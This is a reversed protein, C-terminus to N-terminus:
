TPAPEPPIRTVGSRRSLQRTAYSPEAGLEALAQYCLKLASRAGSQDGRALAASALAAFAEENWPDAALARRALDDAAATDGRGVLLEAARIASAVFRSRYHARDMALWQAEPVDAFLDGRYLDAAALHHDLAATANGESEARAAAALLEDFRDVDLHLRSGVALEVLSGELRVLYPPEGAARWPELAKLLYSLTVGLNNGGKREDHDPWLAAVIAARHTKRHGVLYALLERVRSRRLDPDTVEHRVHAASGNVAGNVLGGSGNDSRSVSLMGLTSVYTVVPPPAPVAALLAKAAKAEAPRSRTLDDVAVRGPPGLADLLAHGQSRGIASLAVALEAAFRHHLAARVRAIESLDLRWLRERRGERAAVLAAALERAYAQYGRLPLADWHARTEPVLVYSLPLAHRWVRRDPGTDPGAHADLARSLLRRAGDEDGEALLVSATTVAMRATPEGDPQPFVSTGEALCERARVVDGVHSLALSANSLGQGHVQAVGAERLAVLLRPIAALTEDPRGLVWQARARLGTVITSVARDGSPNDVGDLMTLVAEADGRDIRVGGRFWLAMVEWVPDLVGPVIADLEALVADDDGALDAVLARVICGLGKAVPHGTAELEAVRAAVEGGTSALDHRAWGLRGLQAIATLEGEVDGDARCAEAAARLSAMATAPQTFAHRLATALQGATSARVPTPCVTLLRELQNPNLRESQLCAARLVTPAEDWMGDERVLAFAQDIRGRDLLERVARRRMATREHPDLALGPATRWLANPSFWGNGNEAVLPVGALARELDVPEGVAASALRQDAGGLDCVVALLHRRHEGLPELVEEWLFAGARRQETVSSAALEAIAPWGGSVELREPRVGRSVALAHLEDDSFRLDDEGLRRLHRRGDLRALAVPPESRAALLLHGNAPLGDILEGLWAAGASGPELQHVDDLVLCVQTPSRKWVMEAVTAVDPPSPDFLGTAPVAEADPADLRALAGAVACALAGDGNDHPELGVWVDEGRPAMRNEEVAQAVLTSKGLGPGGVLLTVRHEWRGILARLLRPRALTGDRPEPPSFRFSHM